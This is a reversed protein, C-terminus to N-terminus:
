WMCWAWWRLIRVEIKRVETRPAKAAACVLWTAEPTPAAVLPAALTAPAAVLPAALTTPAPVLPAAPAALLALEAMEERMEPTVLEAPWSDVKVPLAEDSLEDTDAPRELWIAPALEEYRAMRPPREDEAAVAVPEALLERRACSLEMEDWPALARAAAEVEALPLLEAEAVLELLEVEAEAEVAAPLTTRGAAPRPRPARKRATPKYLHV